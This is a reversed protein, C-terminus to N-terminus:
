CPVNMAHFSNQSCQHVLASACHQLTQGAARCSHTLQRRQQRNTAWPYRPAHQPLRPQDLDALLCLPPDVTQRGLREGVVYSPVPDMDFIEGGVEGSPLAAVGIRQPVFEKRGIFVQHGVDIM